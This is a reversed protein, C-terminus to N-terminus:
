FLSQFDNRRRTFVFFFFSFSLHLFSSFRNRNPMSPIYERSGKRGIKKGLFTHISRSTGGTFKRETLEVLISALSGERTRALVRARARARPGISSAPVFNPFNGNKNRLVLFKPRFSTSSSRRRQGLM